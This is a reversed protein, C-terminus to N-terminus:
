RTAAAGKRRRAAGLATAGAALLLLTVPEPVESSVRELSTVDASYHIYGSGDKRVFNGFMSAIEVNAPDFSAPMATDQFTTAPVLFRLHMSRDFQADTDWMLLEFQDSLAEGEYSDWVQAFGQLDALPSSAFGYGTREVRYNMFAPLSMEYLASRFSPYSDPQTPKLPAMTDYAFSGVLVDGSGFPLDSLDGDSLGVQNITATYRYTILEAQAAFPLLCALGTICLKTLFHM